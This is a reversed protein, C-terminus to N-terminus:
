HSWTGTLGHDKLWRDVGARVDATIARLVPIRACCGERHAELHVEATYDKTDWGGGGIIGVHDFYAWLLEMNRTFGRPKGKIKLTRM